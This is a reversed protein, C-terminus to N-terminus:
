RPGHARQEISAQWVVRVDRAASAWGAGECPQAVLPAPTAWPVRRETPREDNREMKHLVRSRGRGRATCAFGPEPSRLPSEIGAFLDNLTQPRGLAEDREGIAAMSASGSRANLGARPRGSNTPHM